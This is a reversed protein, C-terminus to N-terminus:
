IVRLRFGLDLLLLILSCPRGCAILQSSGLMTTILALGPADFWHGRRKNQLKVNHKVQNHM